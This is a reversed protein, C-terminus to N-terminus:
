RRAHSFEYRVNLYIFVNAVALYALLPTLALGWMIALTAHNVIGLLGTEGWTSPVTLLVPLLLPGSALLGLMIAMAEYLLLRSGHRRLLAWWELLARPLTHEEIVVLPGLLLMLGWLPWCVVEWVLGVVVVPAVLAEPWGLGEPTLLWSPLKQLTLLILLLFGGALFGAGLLHATHRLLGARIERTRPPRLRSLEIFTIQAILATVLCMGLLACTGIGIDAIWPWRPDIHAPLEEYVAAGIGLLLGLGAAPILKIAHFTSELAGLLDEALGRLGLVKGSPSKTHNVGPVSPAAVHASATAPSEPVKPLIDVFEATWELATWEDGPSRRVRADAPIRGSKLHYRLWKTSRARIVRGDPFRVFWPESVEAM